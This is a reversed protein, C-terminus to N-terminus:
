NQSVKYSQFSDISGQVRKQARDTEKSLGGIHDIGKVIRAGLSHVRLFTDTEEEEILSLMSERSYPCSKTSPPNTSPNSPPASLSSQNPNSPAQNNAPAQNVQNPQSNLPPQNNAPPQNPTPTPFTLRQVSRNNPTSFQSNEPSALSGAFILSPNESPM